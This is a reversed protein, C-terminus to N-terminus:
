QAILDMYEQDLATIQERSDLITLSFANTHTEIPQLIQVLKSDRSDFDVNCPELAAGYDGSAASVWQTLYPIQHVNWRICLALNEKDNIVAAFTEGKEDATLTHFIVKEPANDVPACMRTCMNCDTSTSNKETKRATSPILFRCDEQLFPYGINIHYLFCLKEPRFARNEIVDCIKITNRGYTTSVKRRLLLNEGFLCAERGEGTISIVYEDEQFSADIGLMEMPTSWIRGHTPHFEEASTREGHINRLGCTFMGGGMLGRIADSDRADTSNRGQLGPKMMVGLNMGKYSLYAMDLCKDQLLVFELPGNKVEVANLGNARGGRYVIPRARAVQEMSGCYRLIEEKRM